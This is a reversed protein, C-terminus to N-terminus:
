PGTRWGPGNQKEYARLNQVTVRGQEARSLQNRDLTGILHLDMSAVNVSGVGSGVGALAPAGRLASVGTPGAGPTVPAGVAQQRVQIVATRTRALGDLYADVAPGGRSEVNIIALRYQDAISNLYGIVAPGGRSETRILACRGAVAISPLYDLVAPGARSEVRVLALRDAAAISALYDMVAPGNRSEVRITALRDAAAIGNLYDNVAPGGASAVNVTTDRDKTTEDIQGKAQDAGTLTILAQIDSKDKATTLQDIIGQLEAKTADGLGPTNLKGRLDAIMSDARVQAEATTTLVEGQTRANAVAADASAQAASLAAELTKVQAERLENASTKADDTAGKLDDISDLFAFNSDESAYRANTFDLTTQVADRTVANYADIAAKATDTTTTQAAQAEAATRVAAAFEAGGVAGEAILDNLSKTTIQATEQQAGYAGLEKRAQEIAATTNQLARAHAEEGGTLSAVADKGSISAGFFFKELGSRKDIEDNYGKASAAAKEWYGAQDLLQRAYDEATPALQKIEQRQGALEVAAKHVDDALQENGRSLGAYVGSLGILGAGLPGGVLSLLGGGAVRATGMTAGLVGTAASAESVATRFGLARAQVGALAGALLGGEAAASRQALAFLALGGTVVTIPTPIAGVVGALDSLVGFTGTVAPLLERALARGAGGATLKFEQLARDYAQTAAVDDQSFPTGIRDLADQVSMGTNLLRSLQKYGEEGFLNFGVANRQTADPIKQLQILADEITLAWNTTGDANKKISAGFSGLAKDNAGVKQAFEAQIELLDDAELGLSGFLSSLQGGQEITANMSTALSQAGRAGELFSTFAERGFEAVSYGAALGIIAGKVDGVQERFKEQARSSRETAQVQDDAARGAQQMAQAYQEEARTAAGAAAQQSRRASEVRQEAAELQSAKARGSDRLEQLRVEAVSLKGAADQERLRAQAARDAAAAIDDGASKAKKATDDASRGLQDFATTAGQTTADVVLRLREEMSGPM